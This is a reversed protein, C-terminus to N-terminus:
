RLEDFRFSLKIGAFFQRYNGRVIGNITTTRYISDWDTDRAFFFKAMPTITLFDSVGFDIGAGVGAEFYTNTENSLESDNSVLKNEMRNVGPSIQIFFGKQLLNGDKSWVPCDCDEGLDFLYINTNFHFGIQTHERSLDGSADELDTYFIEPTFEIRRKKLRFWYNVGINYGTTQSFNEGFAFNIAENWDDNNLSKYGVKIGVQANVTSFFFLGFLISLFYKM